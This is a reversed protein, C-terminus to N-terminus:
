RVSLVGHVEIEAVNAKMGEPVHVITVRVYRAITGPDFVDHRAPDTRVSETRDIERKWTQQDRSTDVVYRFNGAAAFTLRCDSLQYFGELDVQLWAGANADTAEWHTAKDADNALRAPHGAAESSARSPRDRAVNVANKMADISAQSPPPPTYPRPKAPPTQGPVFAPEGITTITITDDEL